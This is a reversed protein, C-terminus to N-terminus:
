AASSRARRLPVAPQTDWSGGPPPVDEQGQSYLRSWTPIPHARCDGSCDRALLTADDRLSQWPPLLRSSATSKGVTGSGALIVGDEGSAGHLLLRGRSQAEQAVVLAVSSM